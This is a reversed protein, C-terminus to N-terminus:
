PEVVGQSRKVTKRTATRRSASPQSDGTQPTRTPDPLEIETVVLDREGETWEIAEELGAKVRDFLRPRGARSEM